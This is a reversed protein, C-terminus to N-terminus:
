DVNLLVHSFRMYGMRKKNIFIKYFKYFILKCDRKQMVRTIKLCTVGVIKCRM